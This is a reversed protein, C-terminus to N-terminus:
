QGRPAHSRTFRAFYLPGASLCWHDTHVGHINTPNRSLVLGSRVIRFTCCRLGRRGEARARAAVCGGGLRGLPKKQVRGRRRRRPDEAHHAVPARLEATASEPGNAAAWLRPPPRRASRSRRISRASERDMARSAGGRSERRM